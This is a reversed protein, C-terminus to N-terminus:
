HGITAALAVSIGVTGKGSCGFDWYCGKGDCEPCKVRVWEDLERLRAFKLALRAASESAFCGLPCDCKDGDSSLCSQGARDIVRWARVREGVDRGYRVTALAALMPRLSDDEAPLCELGWRRHTGSEKCECAFDLVFGGDAPKAMGNCWTCLYEPPEWYLRCVEVPDVLESEEMRDWLPFVPYDPHSRVLAVLQLVHPDTLPM